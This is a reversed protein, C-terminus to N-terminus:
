SRAGGVLDREVGPEAASLSAAWFEGPLQASALAHEESEGGSCVDAWTRGLIESDSVVVPL